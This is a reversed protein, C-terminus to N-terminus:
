CNEGFKNYFDQVKLAEKASRKRQLSDQDPSAASLKLTSQEGIRTFLPQLHSSEVEQAHNEAKM